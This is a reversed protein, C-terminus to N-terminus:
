LRGWEGAAACFEWSLWDRGTMTRPQIVSARRCNHLTNKHKWFLTQANCFYVDM